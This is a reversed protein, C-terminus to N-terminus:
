GQPRRDLLVTATRAVMEDADGTCARLASAAATGPIEALAQVLRSRVSADPDAGLRDVLLDVIRERHAEHGALVEAAEVDRDGAGILEVLADVAVAAGRRGLTLAATRRVAPDPDALLGELVSTVHTTEEIAALATVARRRVVPDPDAAGDVLRDVGGPRQALAWRLAGAVNPDPEKLLADALSDGSVRVEGALMAATQRDAANDSQVARLLRVVGLVASWETPGAGRVDQLRALLQADAAMRAETDDILRDMLTDPAFGPEDLARGVDRLSLGLSRLSEVHLLRELDAESYERYGGSTRGTPRVLGLSDYHRLMRSSLGTHRAVEGILM